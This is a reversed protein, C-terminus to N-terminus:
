TTSCELIPCDVGVYKGHACLKCLGSRASDSFRSPDKIAAQVETFRLKTRAIKELTKQCLDDTKFMGQKYSWMIGSEDSSTQFDKNIEDSLDETIEELVEKHEQGLKAMLKTMSRVLRDYPKRTKELFDKDTYESSRELCLEAAEERQRSVRELDKTLLDPTIYPVNEIMVVEEDWDSEVAIDMFYVDNDKLKIGLQVVDNETNLTANNQTLKISTSTNELIFDVLIQQDEKNKVVIDWDPSGIPQRLYADVARGGHVAFLIGSTYAKQMSKYALVFVIRFYLEYDYENLM